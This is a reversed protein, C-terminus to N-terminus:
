AQGYGIAAVHHRSRHGRVTNSAMDVRAIKAAEKAMQASTAVAAVAVVTVYVKLVV